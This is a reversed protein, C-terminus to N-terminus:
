QVFWHRPSSQPESKRAHGDSFCSRKHLQNRVHHTHHVVIPSALQGLRLVSDSFSVCSTEVIACRSPSSLTPSLPHGAKANTCGLSEVDFILADLSLTSNVINFLCNQHTRLRSVESSIPQERNLRVLTSKTISTRTEGKLTLDVSEFHQFCM